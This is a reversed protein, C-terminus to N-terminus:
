RCSDTSTLNVYNKHIKINRPVFQICTSKEWERMREKIYQQQQGNVMSDFEYPIIGDEWIRIARLLVVARQKRNFFKENGEGKFNTLNKEAYNDTIVQLNSIKIISFFYCVKLLCLILKM